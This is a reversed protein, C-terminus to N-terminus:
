FFIYGYLYNEIPDQKSLHRYKVNFHICKFVESTNNITQHDLYSLIYKNIYIFTISYLNNQNTLNHEFIIKWNM